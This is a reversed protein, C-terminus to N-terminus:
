QGNWVDEYMENIENVLTPVHEAEIVDQAIWWNNRTHFRAQGPKDKTPHGVVYRAYFRGNRPPTAANSIAVEGVSVGRSKWSRQLRFTREYRSNAPAPPYPTARLKTATTQGWAKMLATTQNAHANILVRLKRHLEADGTIEITAAM